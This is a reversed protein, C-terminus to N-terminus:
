IAAGVTGAALERVKAAVRRNAERTARVFERASPQEMLRDLLEPLQDVQDQGLVWQGLGAAEMFSDIKWDGSVAVVKRGMAVGIVCGHLASSLVVDSRRYRALVAEMEGTRGAEIRNNTARYQRGTRGAYEEGRRCMEEYVEAGATTYNDVHLLGFGEPAPEIVAMSPCAVPPSLRCAALHTHTVADRVVCVESARVVDELLSISPRSPEHKLDCYGLGWLCVPVRGSLERLGHWLPAFYDMFLGGGGVVIVDAPGTRNLAILTEDIFPGDCLHERVPLPRVLAQIGLASLWDGINSRNAFVHHIV